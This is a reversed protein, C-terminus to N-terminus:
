RVDAFATGDVRGGVPRDHNDRTLSVEHAEVDLKLFGFSLRTVSRRCAGLRAHISGLDRGLHDKVPRALDQVRIGKLGCLGLPEGTVLYPLTDCRLKLLPLTDEDSTVGAM